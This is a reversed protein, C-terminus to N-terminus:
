TEIGCNQHELCNVIHLVVPTDVTLGGRTFVTCVQPIDVKGVLLVLSREDETHTVSLMELHPRIVEIIKSNTASM